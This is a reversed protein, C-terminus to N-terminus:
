SRACPRPRSRTSRARAAPSPASSPPGGILQAVDGIFEGPGHVTITRPKAESDDVIEVEGSRVVYFRSDRDGAELLKEGARYRKLTTRPCHGLAALQGADIKPFAVSHLDHEAM